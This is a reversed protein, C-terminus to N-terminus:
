QKQWPAPAARRRKREKEEESMLCLRRARHICIGIQWKEVSKPGDDMCFVLMQMAGQWAVHRHAHDVAEQNTQQPEPGVGKCLWTLGTVGRNPQEM